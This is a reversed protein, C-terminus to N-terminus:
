NMFLEDFALPLLIFYVKATVRTFDCKSMSYLSKNVDVLGFPRSSGFTMQQHLYTM